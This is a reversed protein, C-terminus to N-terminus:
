AENSTNRRRGSILIGSMLILSVLGSLITMDLGQGRMGTLLAVALPLLLTACCATIQRNRVNIDIPWGRSRLRYVLGGVPFSILILLYGIPNPDDKVALSRPVILPIAMVAAIIGAVAFYLLPGRHNKTARAVPTRSDVDSPPLYPNVAQEMTRKTYADEDQRLLLNEGFDNPPFHIKVRTLQHFYTKGRLQAVNFVAVFCRM